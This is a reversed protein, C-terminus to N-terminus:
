NNCSKLNKSKIQKITHIHSGPIQPLGLLLAALNATDSNRIPQLVSSYPPIETASPQIATCKNLTYLDANEVNEGWIYFPITHSQFNNAIHNTRGVIGGHDSTLIIVTSNKYASNTDLFNLIQGLYNDTTKIANLYESGPLISWGHDHGATDPDRIHLFAYHRTQSELDDIFNSVLSATSQDFIYKDIKSKGNDIGIHDGAGNTANWSRKFLAFKQKGAFLITSLGADHVVDFIGAIYKGANSHLTAIGPDFNIEWGHGQESKNVRRGSFQSTQNPLTTTWDPDTRAKLTSSGENKLRTFNPLETETLINLADAYLGDVSIHIIHSAAFISQNL